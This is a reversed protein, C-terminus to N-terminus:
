VDLLDSNDIALLSHVHIKNKVIQKAIWKQNTTYSKPPTYAKAEERKPINCKKLKPPSGKQELGQIKKGRKIFEKTDHVFFFVIQKAIQM